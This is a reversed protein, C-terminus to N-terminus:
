KKLLNVSFSCSATVVANDKKIYEIYLATVEGSNDFSITASHELGAASKYGKLNKASSLTGSNVGYFVWGNNPRSEYDEVIQLLLTYSGSTLHTRVTMKHTERYSVYTREVQVEDVSQLSHILCPDGVRTIETKSVAKYDGIFTDFPSGYAVPSFALLSLVLAIRM